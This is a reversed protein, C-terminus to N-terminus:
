YNGNILDEGSPVPEGDIIGLYTKIGRDKYKALFYARAYEQTEPDTFLTWVPTMSLSIPEAKSTSVDDSEMSSIWGTLVERIKEYDNVKTSTMLETVKDAVGNADGGYVKLNLKMNHLVTTGDDTYQLEGEINCVSMIEASLAAGVRTKGKLAVNDVMMHMNLSGGWNGGAIFFPGYADDIQALVMNANEYEENSVADYLKFYKDAFGVSFVNGYTPKEVKKYMADIKKQQAKTLTSDGKNKPNKANMTKFELEKANIAKYAADLDKLEQDAIDDAYIKIVDESVYAHYMPAARQIFYDVYTRDEHKDAFYDLKAEVQLFGLAVNVKVSAALEKDQQLCSDLLAATMESINIPAEVYANKEIEGEAILKEIVDFNFICNSKFIKTLDFKEKDDEDMEGNAIKADQIARRKKNEKTNLVYDYDAGHGLGKEAFKQGSGNDDSGRQSISIETIEADGDKSIYLVTSRTSATNNADLNIKITKNGDYEVESDGLAAWDCDADIAASWKGTATVPLSYTKDGAAIEIGKSVLNEDLNVVSPSTEDKPSEDDDKCSPLVVFMALLSAFMSLILIRKM